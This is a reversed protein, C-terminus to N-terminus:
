DALGKVIAEIQEMIGLFNDQEGAMWEWIEWSESWWIKESEEKTM